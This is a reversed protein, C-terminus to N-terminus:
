DDTVMMQMQGTSKHVSMSNLDLEEDGMEQDKAAARIQNQLNQNEQDDLFPNGGSASSVKPKTKVVAARYEAKKGQQAKKHYDINTREEWLTKMQENPLEEKDLIQGTLKPDVSIQSCYGDYSSVVIQNASIWTMDTIYAYHLNGIVVMPYICETSYVLVQDITQVSFIVAYPLDILAPVDKKGGTKKYLFPSFKVGTASYRLGPLTFAPKTLNGRMFGYVTFDISSESNEQYISSPTLLFSGDPSWSFRRFFCKYEECGLFFRQKFETKDGEPEGEAAEQVPHDDDASSLTEKGKITHKHFFEIKKNLNKNKYVKMQGEQTLLCIYALLPDIAIGQV